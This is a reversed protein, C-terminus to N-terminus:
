FDDWNFEPYQLKLLPLLSNRDFQAPRSGRRKVVPDPWTDKNLSKLEIGIFEAVQRPTVTKPQVSKEEVADITMVMESQKQPTKQANKADVFATMAEIKAILFARFQSLDPYHDNADEDNVDKCFQLLANASVPLSHAVILGM